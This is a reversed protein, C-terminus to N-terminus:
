NVTQSLSFIPMMIALAVAGVTAGLFLILIPEILSPLNKLINNLDEEYFVATEELIEDLTGTEEGVAIMQIVTQPFLGRYNILSEHINAGQKLAHAVDKLAKQYYINRIVDATILFSKVVPIDTKLLSSLSRSMRALNLKVIMKGFIPLHLCIKHLIKKGLATKRFRVFLAALVVALIIILYFYHVLMNSLAILIKTPLPLKMGSESFMATLKPVVFVLLGGTIAVMATFIVVPYAMAGKIKSKLDHEKYIQDTLTELIEDLKGSEEGAKIMNIFIDSFVKPFNGLALSFAEGKQVGTKIEQLIQKFKVNDIQVTLSELAQNLPVGSKIMLRLNKTFFLKDTLKIPNLASNIKTLINNPM